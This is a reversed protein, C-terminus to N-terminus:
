SLPLCADLSQISSEIKPKMNLPAPSVESEGDCAALTSHLADCRLSLPSGVHHLLTSPWDPLPLFM